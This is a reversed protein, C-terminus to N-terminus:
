SNKTKGWSYICYSETHETITVQVGTMELGKIHIYDGEVWIGVVRQNAPIVASFNFVPTEGPYAWYNMRKGTAGSKNLYSICAFLDREIRSIDSEYIIYEGGRIYVTDGANMLQQAKQISALPEDITGPNTDSGGPAIYYVNSFSMRVLGLLMFVPLLYDKM